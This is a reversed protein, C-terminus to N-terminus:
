RFLMRRKGGPGDKHRCPARRAGKLVPQEDFTALRCENQRLDPGDAVEIFINQLRLVRGDAQGFRDAIDTAFEREHGQDIDPGAFIRLKAQRLFQSVRRLLRLGQRGAKALQNVDHFGLLNGILALRKM